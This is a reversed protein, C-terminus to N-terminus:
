AHNERMACRESDLVRDSSAAADNMSALLQITAFLQIQTIRRHLAFTDRQGYAGRLMRLNDPVEAEGSAGAARSARRSGENM